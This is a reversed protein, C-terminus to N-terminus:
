PQLLKLQAELEKIKNELNSIKLDKDDNLEINNNETEQNEFEDLENIWNHTKSLTKLKDLSVKYINYGNSKLHNIQVENLKTSFNNKDCPRKKKVICFCEYMEFLDKIKIGEIGINKLIFEEKLFLYVSDLRKSISNLKNKTLPYDQPHFNCTNIEKYYSYLCNGVDNNFCNNYINDWYDIDGKRHTQVDLVFYRRDDDAVDHNSLIMYNNLNNAEFADQGKKM